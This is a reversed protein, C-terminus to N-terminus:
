VQLANAIRSVSNNSVQTSPTYTDGVDAGRWLLLASISVSLWAQRCWRNICAMNDLHNKKASLTRAEIDGTLRKAVLLAAGYYRRTVGRLAMPNPSYLWQVSGTRGQVALIAAM